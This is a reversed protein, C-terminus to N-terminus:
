SKFFELIEKEPNECIKFDLEKPLCNSYNKWTYRSDLFLIFGKDKESRIVRGGAQIAKIIAPYIYGYAWGKGFKHEYYEILSKTELDPEALPVGVVIVGKLCNNPFDVGEAFSGGAVGLLVYDSNNSKLKELINSVEEPNAKNKQIIQEKCFTGCEVVANLVDYSPFFVAVNGKVCKLISNIKEHIKLYEEKTRASFKTTATPIILNLRNEKPFPSPYSKMVTRKQDLGLLDRYMDLPQLTGSMLISAYTKKFIESTFIGPDLCKKSIRKTQRETCIRLYGPSDDLWSSYFSYAKLCASKSRNTLELYDLGTERMDELLDEDVSLENQFVVREGEVKDFERIAKRFFSVLEKNKLLNAEEQANKLINKTISVSLVERVRDPLNHAEDIVLIINELKKKIRNLFVKCIGPNFIHFYDAITVINKRANNLLIEYPCPTNEFELAKEKIEIHSLIGSIGIDESNLYYKCKEKAKLRNCFEYIDEKSASSVHPHSCLYKKGVVDTACFDLSYKESIG